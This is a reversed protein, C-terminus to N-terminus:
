RRKKKKAQPLFVLVLSERAHWPYTVPAGIARLLAPVSDELSAFVIGGDDTRRKSLKVGDGRKDKPLWPWLVKAPAYPRGDAGRYADDLLELRVRSIGAKWREAVVSPEADWTFVTLVSRGISKSLGRGWANIEDVRDSAVAFWKGSRAVVLQRAGDPLEPQDGFPDGMPRTATLEFGPMMAELASLLKTSTTGHVYSTETTRSMFVMSRSKVLPWL